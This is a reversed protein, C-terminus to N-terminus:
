RSQSASPRRIVRPILSFIVSLRRCSSRAKGDVSHLSPGRLSEQTNSGDPFGELFASEKGTSDPFPNLNQMEVLIGGTISLASAWPNYKSYCSYLLFLSEFALSRSILDWRTVIFQSGPEQHTVQAEQDEVQHIQPPPFFPYYLWMMFNSCPNFSLMQFLYENKQM